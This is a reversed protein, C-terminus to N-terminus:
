TKVERSYIPYLMVDYNNSHISRTAILVKLEIDPYGPLTFDLDLDDISGGGDLTLSEIGM